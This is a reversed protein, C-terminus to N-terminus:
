HSRHHGYLLKEKAMLVIRAASTSQNSQPHIEHALANLMENPIYYLIINSNTSDNRVGIMHDASGVMGFITRDTSGGFYVAYPKPPANYDYSRLLGWSM